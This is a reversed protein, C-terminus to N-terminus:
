DAVRQEASWSESAADRRARYEAESVEVDDIWYRVIGRVYRRRPETIVIYPDPELIQEARFSVM